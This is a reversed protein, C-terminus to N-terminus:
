STYNFSNLVKLMQLYGISVGYLSRLLAAEAQFISTSITRLFHYRRSIVSSRKDVIRKMLGLLHIITMAYDSVLRTRKMIVLLSYVHAAASRSETVTVAIM